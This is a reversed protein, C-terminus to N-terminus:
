LGGKFASDLISNKLALLGDLQSKLEDQTATSKRTLKNLIEVIDQQQKITPCPIPIQKIEKVSAINKIAAGKVKDELYGQEVYNELFYMFFQNLMKKNDLTIKLLAQNIIGKEASFPIEAIKGVTGSCSIILDNPLVTFAKLENYKDESIYYEGITFDNRIAHKQEYVKYGKDVFFSKKLASGFPGRKISYKEAAVLDTLFCAGWVLVGNEFIKKISTTLLLKNLEVSQQLHEIATDIRTLLADLKEVIRKQQHKPALPVPVSKLKKINTRTIAAGSIDGLLFSQGIHSQLYYNLYKPSILTRNQKILAVSSLLSFPEHLENLCCTGTM